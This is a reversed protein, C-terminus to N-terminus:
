LVTVLLITLQWFGSFSFRLLTFVLNSDVLSRNPHPVAVVLAPTVTLHLLVVRAQVFALHLTDKVRALDKPTDKHLRTGTDLPLALAAPRTDKLPLRVTQIDRLLREEEGALRPCQGEVVPRGQLRCLGQVCLSAKPARSHPRLDPIAYLFPPQVATQCGKLSPSLVLRLRRLAM